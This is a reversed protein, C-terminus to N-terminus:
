ANRRAIGELAVRLRHTHGRLREEGRPGSLEEDWAFTTTALRGRTINLPGLAEFLGRAYKLDAILNLDLFILRRAGMQEIDAVVEAFPKQLPRGWAAPVVCFECGHICGRTAEITHMTAFKAGPLMERKPSPRWALSLDHGQVYMKKMGEGIFHDRLLQPWTEEAYGVVVCDAHGAAEAPVLTPHVGGLVVPVGRKRFYDALEYSRLATGTITSIGVLDAEADWDIDHIGEDVVIM